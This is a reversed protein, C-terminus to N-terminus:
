HIAGSTRLDVIDDDSLGWEGLAEDAHQGPNPPPRRISGAHPQLPARPRSVVGAVETFTERFRNHPHAHAEAPSLVPARLRRQGM